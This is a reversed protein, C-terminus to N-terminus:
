IPQIPAAAPAAMGRVKGSLYPSEAEALVRAAQRRLGEETGRYAGRKAHLYVLAPDKPPTAPPASTWDPPTSSWEGRLLTLVAADCSSALVLLRNAVAPTEIPRFLIERNNWLVDAASPARPLAAMAVDARRWPPAAPDGLREAIGHFRDRQLRYWVPVWASPLTFLWPSGDPFSSEAIWPDDQYYVNGCTLVDAPRSAEAREKWLEADADGSEIALACLGLAARWKMSRDRTEDGLRFMSALISRAGEPDGALWRRGAERELAEPAMRGIGFHAYEVPLHRLILSDARYGDGFFRRLFRRHIDVAEGNRIGMHPCALAKRIAEAADDLRGDALEIDALAIWLAARDGAVDRLRRRAVEREPGETWAASAHETLVFLPRVELASAKNMFEPNPNLKYRDGTAVARCTALAYWGEADSPNAQLHNELARRYAADMGGHVWM